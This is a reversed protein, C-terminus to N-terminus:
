ESSERLSVDLSLTRGRRILVDEAYTTFGPKRVEVRHRGEELEVTVFGRDAPGEWRAGDVLIEADVPQIRLSLLGVRAPAVPRRPDDDEAGYADGGLADGTGDPGEALDDGHRPPTPPRAQEGPGLPQMDLRLRQDAGPRFYLHREVTRYGELYLTITRGGPELRLRQFVGDFDDVIGAYYGDVFVQAQRPTVQLRLSVTPDRMVYRYGYPPYRYPGWPGWPDYMWHHYYPYGAIIVVSRRHRRQAEVPSPLASVLALAVAVIAAVLLRPRAKPFVTDEGVPQRQIHLPLALRM